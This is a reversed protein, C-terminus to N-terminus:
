LYIYSPTKIRAQEIAVKSFDIGTYSKFEKDHLMEALHGPGCGLDLIKSSKDVSLIKMVYEWVLFYRIDTYHKNYIKSNLYIEDYAEKEFDINM